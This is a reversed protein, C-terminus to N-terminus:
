IQEREHICSCLALKTGCALNEECSSLRKSGLAKAFSKM